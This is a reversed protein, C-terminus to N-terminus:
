GHSTIVSANCGDSRKWLIGAPLPRVSIPVLIIGLSNSFTMLGAGVFGIAALTTASSSQVIATSLAGTLAGTTPTRTFRLLASRIKDGAIKKLSDTMIVMGLLFIGLGGAALLIDSLQPM